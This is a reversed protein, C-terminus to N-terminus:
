DAHISLSDPTHDLADAAPLLRRLARALREGVAHHGAAGLHVPDAHFGAVDFRSDSPHATLDLCNVFEFGFRAAAAPYLPAVRSRYYAALPDACPLPSLLVVRGCRSAAVAECFSFFKREFVGTDILPHMFLADAALKCAGWLRFPMGRWSVGSFKPPDAAHTSSKASKARKRRLWKAFSAQSEYHGVQLVTFHQGFRAGAATVRDPHTLPVHTLVEMEIPNGGAALLASVVEPIASDQGVLYGALHCGGAMLIRPKV